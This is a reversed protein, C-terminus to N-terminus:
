MSRGWDLGVGGAEGTVPEAVGSSPACIGTVMPMQVRARQLSTIDLSETCCTCSGSLRTLAHLM